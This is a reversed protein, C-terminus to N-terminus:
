VELYRNGSPPATLRVHMRKSLRVDPSFMGMDIHLAGLQPLCGFSCGQLVPLM